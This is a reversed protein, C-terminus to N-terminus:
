RLLDGDREEDRDAGRFAASGREHEERFLRYPEGEVAYGDTGGAVSARRQWLQHLAVLRCTSAVVDARDAEVGPLQVLPLQDPARLQLAGHRHPRPDAVLARRREAVSVLANPGRCHSWRRTADDAQRQRAGTGLLVVRSITPVISLQM